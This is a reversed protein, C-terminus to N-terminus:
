QEFKSYSHKIVESLVDGTTASALRSHSPRFRAEPQWATMLSIASLAKTLLKM